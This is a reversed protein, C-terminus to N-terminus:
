GARLRGLAPTCASDAAAAAEVCGFFAGAFLNQVTARDPEGTRLWALCVSKVMELWGRLALELVLPPEPATLARLCLGVAHDDVRRAIGALEPSSAVGATLLASWSVPHDQLYDLYVDLGVLLQVAVPDAPDTRMRAVLDDAARQLAASALAQKDGFYHYILAASAGSEKALEQMAVSEVDRHAFLRLAADLIEERREDRDLRRRQSVSM